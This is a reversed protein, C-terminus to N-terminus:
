EMEIDVREALGILDQNINGDVLISQAVAMLDGDITGKIQITMGAAAMDKGITEDRFVLINESCRTELAFSAPALLTVLGSILGLIRLLNRRISM